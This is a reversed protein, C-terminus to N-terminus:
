NRYIKKNIWHLFPIKVEAGIEPLFEARGTLSIQRSTEREVGHLTTRILVQHKQQSNQENSNPDDFNVVAIFIIIPINFKYKFFKSVMDRKWENM